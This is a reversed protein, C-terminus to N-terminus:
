QREGKVAFLQASGPLRYLTPIGWEIVAKDPEVVKRLDMQLAVRGAMVATDINGEKLLRGYLAGVFPAVSKTPISTQNAVVAPIGNRLLATAIPGFDDKFDGAGTLCASLICLKLKQGALAIALDSAKVYDPTGTDVDVLVLNGEGNIVGGHGLFHFVDFTEMNLAKLLAQSTAGPIIKLSAVVDTQAEFQRRVNAEVDAWGVGQEKIPDAVALLVRFTKLGKVPAPDSTACMPLVRVM